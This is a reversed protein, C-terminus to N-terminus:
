PTGAILRERDFLRVAFRWGLGNLVVLLAVAGVALAASPELINLAVLVTVVITPLSALLGLQQAVRVDSVRTSLGIAIWISWGALLPTFALQSLLDPGKLVQGAVGPQALAMVCGVFVGFVLYAVLISPIFAALAKGVLFEDRLIPTTLVPELTGQQREGAVAYGAVFLPVLTPIGLMYILVHEQALSASAAIGLVAVLPQISFLIPIVAMTVVVSRNRRYERLEKRVIAGVRRASM